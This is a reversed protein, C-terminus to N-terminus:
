LTFLNPYRYGHGDKVDSVQFGLPVARDINNRTDDVLMVTQADTVNFHAM